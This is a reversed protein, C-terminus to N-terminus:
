DKVLGKLYNVEKTTLYRTCGRGLGGLRLDGLATRKLFVLTKGLAEAMRRIERNKGEHLVLELRTLNNEKGLIKVGAPQTVSGDELTLGKQWREIEQPALDGEIKAIYTKPVAFAPHTLRHLLDGDNTLLLLGESDYDLRGVCDLKKDTRIYDYVTKRGLEDKRTCICGKPKNLMLYTYRSVPKVRKGDVTVTDNDLVVDYGPETMKKGNVSVRGEAILKDAARRSAVGCEALYKNIRM